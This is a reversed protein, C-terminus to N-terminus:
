VSHPPRTATLYARWGGHATIDIAQCAAISECLFGKAERGGALRVTGIGLPPPIAAIFSGLQEAPVAWVEVEVAAGSAVRELGPRGDPLAVLRYEPATRTTELLRAGRGTLQHNLPLGSMHAGCVVLEVFGTANGAAPAAAPLPCGTAGMPVCAAAHLRAAVPLLVNERFAPALLTVGFPLGDPQFGAPVAIACLDLLNVFNTYHGLRANLGIPDAEVARVTYSTAVTPLLLLDIRQWVPELARRLERLRYYAAFADAACPRAGSGIIARTVPHLADPHADIFERIAAYREAVWPGDYLLRGAALFPELDVDEPEGGDARLRDIAADYLREGAANGFLERQAPRPVGFRYPHPAAAPAVPPPRSFPDTPDFGSVAALVRAADDSSLAFISTCDLSRCAPVLGSTSVLGRTPKLGVINNLAAPVRGSGATDTGFAFSVLGAAVAVASGSSSGGPIMAADFPNVATGYPSRVGVLGTAFQDLNTKGIPIAGAAIAHAVATATRAALYAFAPCAATTPTGALDFNDKIAFPVGYLTATGPDRGDLARLYTAIEDRSLRHIWVHDDGRAEIRGLVEDVVDAPSLTGRRYQAQLTALDLSLDAAM